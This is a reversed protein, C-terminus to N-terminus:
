RPAAKGPRVPRHTTEECFRDLCRCAHQDEREARTVDSYAAANIVAAPRNADLWGGLARTDTLDLEDRGPAACPRDDRASAERLSEGLLGSGGLVLIGDTVLM